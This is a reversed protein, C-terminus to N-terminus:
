EYDNYIVKNKSTVYRIDGLIYASGFEDNLIQVVEGTVCGAGIGM